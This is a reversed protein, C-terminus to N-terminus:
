WVSGTTHHFLIYQEINTDAGLRGNAILMDTMKCFALLRRGYSDIVYDKNVRQTFATEDFLEYFSYDDIYKDFDMIDTESATRGNFDGTIYVKGLNKFRLVCQELLEYMDVAQNNLVESGHPPIYINCIYVDENCVLLDSRIKICLIGCQHKVVIQIKDKYCNKYYVSLGGSFRGKKTGRSKNGHIHDCSYGDIDLNTYESKSLWTESFLIVDYSNVFRLFDVDGLKRKLGNINWSIIRLQEEHFAYESLM